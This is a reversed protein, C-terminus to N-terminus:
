TNPSTNSISLLTRVSSREEFTDYFWCWALLWEEPQQLAAAVQTLDAWSSIRARKIARQLVKPLFGALQLAALLRTLAAATESQAECSCDLVRFIHGVAVAFDVSTPRFQPGGHVPDLCLIPAISNPHVPATVDPFISAALSTTKLRPRVVVCHNRVSLNFGFSETGGSLKLQLRPGYFLPQM